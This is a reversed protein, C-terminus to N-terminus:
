TLRFIFLTEIYARYPCLSTPPSVLKENLSVSVDSFLSRMWLNVPGVDAGGDLATDDDAVIQAEVFLYTNTLDIRSTNARIASASV